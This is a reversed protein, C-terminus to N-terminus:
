RCTSTPPLPRSAPWWTWTTRWTPRRRCFSICGDRVCKSACPRTCSRWPENNEGNEGAGNVVQEQIDGRTGQEALPQSYRRAVEGYYDGLPPLPEFLSREPRVERKEPAVWPLSELPLRLGMPSDGPTLYMTGLRFTWSSSEWRAADTGHRARLPLAYGAPSGLDGALLRALRRREEADKLDSKLPDVNAPLRQEKWLHFVPDEYGPVIYREGLGLRRALQRVFQEAHHPGYGYDRQEDAICCRTRAVGATRGRALLLGAVLPAAARGSVVQGPRIAAAGGPAFRERLRRLLEGALERKAAGLAAINWEAGDMDDISVFTPEGGMTLRVDRASLEADM